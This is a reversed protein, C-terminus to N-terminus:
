VYCVQCNECFFSRRNKIGTYKKFIPLQCLQCFTKTHALWHQRLVYQKKWALFQFSYIRAQEIMESIKLEPMKGIMSEPHVGIRYLVENKIINGVGAFINQELLADCVLKAPVAELKRRAADPDWAPNMVDATWDYYLDLDGEFFKVSCTYFNLEGNPFVMSLRAPIDKRENIRYSGFMLLHIRLTFGEFCILFHKGWSKFDIVKQNLLRQWDTKSNGSIAIIKQGAFAQVAEKLIVISPGEPM